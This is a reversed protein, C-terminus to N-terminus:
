RELRRVWERLFVDGIEYRGNREVLEREVLRGLSSRVSGPSGLKHTRRYRESYIEGTERALAVLLARQHASLADWVASYRASEADLLDGLARGVLDVSIPGGESRARSWAFSCLEQTEYPRGGTLALVHDVAADDAPIGGAGFREHLFPAFEVPAIPGLPLPKAARYLHRGRHMFLNQMLHRKSGLFVHSVEDQAQFISRMLGPLDRDISVVEQFEDIVLAVRRGREVAIRGPLSLLGELVKQVDEHREFSTFELAPRGDETVTLRPAVPLHAFFGLVKDLARELPDVLGDYLAQALHDALLERTPSAFLDVYAVLMGGARLDEIARQVLSTKGYRRPSIVVVNQGSRMDDGLRALEATRDTFHTGRAIGGYRFPNEEHRRRRPM